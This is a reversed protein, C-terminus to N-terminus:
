GLVARGLGRRFAEVVEIPVGLEEAILGMDTGFCREALMYDFGSVLLRAAQEDVRAEVCEPQLGVDGRLAHVYEHALVARQRVPTLRSDVIITRAQHVYAGRVDVPLFVVNVGIGACAVILEELSVCRTYFQSGRYFGQRKLLCVLEPM